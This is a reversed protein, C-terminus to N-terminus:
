IVRPKFNGLQNYEGYAEASIAFKKKTKRPQDNQPLPEPDENEEEPDVFSDDSSPLHSDDNLSMNRELRKAEIEKGEKKIWAEIFDCVNEPRKLVLEKMLPKILNNVHTELYKLTETKQESTM